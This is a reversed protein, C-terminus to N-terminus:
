LKNHDLKGDGNKSMAWMILNVGVADTKTCYIM